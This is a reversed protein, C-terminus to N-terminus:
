CIAQIATMVAPTSSTPKAVISLSEFLKVFTHGLIPNKTKADPLKENSAQDSFTKGMPVAYATQVPIPAAPVAIKPITRKL